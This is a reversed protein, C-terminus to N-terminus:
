GKSGRRVKGRKKVVRERRVVKKKVKERRNVTKGERGRKRRGAELSRGESGGEAAEKVEGQEKKGKFL